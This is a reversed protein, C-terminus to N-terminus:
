GPWWCRRSSRRGHRSSSPPRCSTCTIPGSAKASSRWRSTMRRRSPSWSRPTRSAPFEMLEGVIGNFGGTTDTRSAMIEQEVRVAVPFGSEAMEFAFDLWADGGAPLLNLAQYLAPLTLVADRRVLTLIVAELYERARGEFYSSAPAGSPPILNEALVKTDSVLSRSGIRLYDVPNIRNTPLGHLGAPNWYLCFKRSPTQNQSIAALEGKLDLVLMSHRYIGACLNYALVDRLKGGRAGATLLLGGRGRYFIPRIGAFGVLLSGPTHSFMGARAIEKPGAFRASGFPYGANSLPGTM